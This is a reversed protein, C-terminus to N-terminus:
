LQWQGYSWTGVIKYCNENTCELSYEEIWSEGRYINVEKFDVCGCKCKLPRGYENIFGAEIETKLYEEFKLTNFKLKNLNDLKDDMIKM